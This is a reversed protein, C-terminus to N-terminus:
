RRQLLYREAEHSQYYAVRAGIPYVLADAFRDAVLELAAVLGLERDDGDEFPSICYAREGAGAARLLAAIAPADSRSGPLPTLVAPDLSRTDHLLADRLDMRRSPKGALALIRERKEKKVFLRVIDELHQNM